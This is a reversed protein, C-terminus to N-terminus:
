DHQAGRPGTLPRLRNVERLALAGRVDRSAVDQSIRDPRLRFKSSAGLGRYVRTAQHIVLEHNADDTLPQGMRIGGPTKDEVPERARHRLGDREVFDHGSVPRERDYVNRYWVVREDLAERSAAHAALTAM